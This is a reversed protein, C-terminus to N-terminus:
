TTEVQRHAASVYDRLLEAATTGQEFAQRRLWNYLEAPLGVRMYTRDPRPQRGRRGARRPAASAAAAAGAPRSATTAPSALAVCARVVHAMSRDMAFAQRRLWEHQQRTLLVTMRHWGGPSDGAPRQEIATMEDLTRADTAVRVDGLQGSVEDIRDRLVVTATTRQEFATARLWLHQSATFSVMMRVWPVPAAARARGPAGARTLGLQDRSLASQVPAILATWGTV